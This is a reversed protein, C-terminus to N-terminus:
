KYAVEYGSGGRNPVGAQVKQVNRPRQLKDVRVSRRVRKEAVRSMARRLALRRKNITKAM